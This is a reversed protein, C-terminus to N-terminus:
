FNYTYFLYPAFTDRTDYRVQTEGAPPAQNAAFGSGLSKVNFRRGIGIGISHKKSQPDITGDKKEVKGFGWILGTGVFDILQSSSNGGGVGVGMFLGLCGMGNMSHAIWTPGCEDGDEAQFYWHSGFIISTQYNQITNARVVGNVITADSIVPTHNHMYALGIGWGKLFSSVGADSNGSPKSGSANATSADAVGPNGSRETKTTAVNPAEAAVNTRLTSEKGTSTAPSTESTIDLVNLSSPKPAVTSPQRATISANSSTPAKNVVSPQIPTSSAQGPSRCWLIADSASYGAAQLYRLDDLTCAGFVSSAPVFLLLSKVLNLSLSKV